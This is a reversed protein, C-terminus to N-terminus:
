RRASSSSCSGRGVAGTMFLYVAIPVWVIAAGVAPLLSLFVMLAGWLLAADIGLALTVGGITGQIAAIVVNGKVTARVVGVFKDLLRQNYADSLPMASRINRALGRGDRFLFFLVYLM